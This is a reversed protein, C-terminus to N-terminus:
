EQSEDDVEVIVNIVEELYSVGGIKVLDILSQGSRSIARWGHAASQQDAELLAISAEWELKDLMDEAMEPTWETNSELSYITYNRVSLGFKNEYTEPTERTRITAASTVCTLPAQSKLDAPIYPFVQKPTRMSQKLFAALEHRLAGRDIVKIDSM